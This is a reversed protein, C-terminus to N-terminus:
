HPACRRSGLEGLAYRNISMAFRWMSGDAILTRSVTNRKCRCRRLSRLSCHAVSNLNLGVGGAALSKQLSEAVFLRIANGNIEAARSYGAHVGTAHRRQAVVVTEFLTRHAYVLGELHQRQDIFIQARRHAHVHRADERARGHESKGDLAPLTPIEVPEFHQHGAVEVGDGIFLAVRQNIGFAVPRHRRAPAHGLTAVEEIGDDTLLRDVFLLQIRLIIELLELRNRLRIEIVQCARRSIRRCGARTHQGSESARGEAVNCQHRPRKHLM